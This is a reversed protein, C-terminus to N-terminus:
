PMGPRTKGVSETLVVRSSAHGGDGCAILVRGGDGRLYKNM